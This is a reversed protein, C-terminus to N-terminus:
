ERYFKVIFLDLWDTLGTGMEGGMMTMMIIMRDINVRVFWFFVFGAGGGGLGERVVVHVGTYRNM